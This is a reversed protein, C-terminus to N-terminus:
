GDKEEIIYIDEATIPNGYASNSFEKDVEIYKTEIMEGLPLLPKPQLNLIEYKM